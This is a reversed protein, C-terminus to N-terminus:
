LYQGIMRFSLHSHAWKIRLSSSSARCNKNNLKLPVGDCSWCFVKLRRKIVTLTVKVPWLWKICIKKVGYPWKVRNCWSRLTVGEGAPSHPGGGGQVLPPPVCGGTTSPAPFDWNPRSSFLRSSQRSQGIYLLFMFDALHIRSHLIIHVCHVCWSRVMVKRPWMLETGHIYATVGVGYWSHVCNTWFIRQSFQILTVQRLWCVAYMWLVSNTNGRVNM